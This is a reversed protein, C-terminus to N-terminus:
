GSLTGQKHLLALSSEGIPSVCQAHTINGHRIGMSCQALAKAIDALPLRKHLLTPVSKIGQPSRITLVFPAADCLLWCALLACVQQM